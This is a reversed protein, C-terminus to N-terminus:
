RPERTNLCLTPMGKEEEQDQQIHMYVYDVVIVPVERKDNNSSRHGYAEARGKVCHPCWSRFVSHDLNHEEVEKASHVADTKRARAVNAEEFTERLAELADEVTEGFVKAFREEM